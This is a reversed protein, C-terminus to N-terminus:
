KDEQKAENCDCFEPLAVMGLVSEPNDAGLMPFAPMKASLTVPVDWAASTLGGCRACYGYHGKDATEKSIYISM